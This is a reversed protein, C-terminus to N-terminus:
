RVSWLCLVPEFDTPNLNVTLTIIAKILFSNLYNSNNMPADALFCFGLCTLLCSSFNIGNKFPLFSVM